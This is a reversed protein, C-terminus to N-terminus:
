AAEAIDKLTDGVVEQIGEVKSLDGISVVGVLREDDRSLILMRRVEKEKMHSACEEVDDDEFCYFVERTMIDRVPTSWDRGDTVARTVIDRDTLTGVLKDGDTIPLFGVDLDTMRKAAQQINTDPTIAEVGTSMIERVKM